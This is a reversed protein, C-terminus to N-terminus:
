KNIIIICTAVMTGSEKFKGSPIELVKANHKKLWDRFETEKKNSALQWHKSAISVLRGGDKLSDYMKYIHTIDQNKNFPPNAIIRDFHTDCETLFDSGLVRCGIIKELFTVNLPMLEFAWVTYSDYLERHIAKVIAGQGASPELIEHTNEVEALEVLYDALDDPTGFFQFEKKLNVNDGERLKILYPLPNEQFLFAQKSTNWKGGILELKNKVEMYLERSLKNPPLVVSFDKITCAILVDKATHLEKFQPNDILWNQYQAVYIDCFDKEQETTLYIRESKDTLLSNFGSVTQECFRKFDLKGSKYIVDRLQSVQYTNDAFLILDNVEHTLAGTEFTSITSM